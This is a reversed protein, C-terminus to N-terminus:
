KHGEQTRNPPLAAVQRDYEMLRALHPPPNPCAPTHWWRWGAGILKGEFKGTIILGCHACSPQFITM